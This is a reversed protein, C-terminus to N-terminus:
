KISSSKENYIVPNRKNKFYKFNRLFKLRNRRYFNLVYTIERSPYYRDPSVLAGANLMRKTALDFNRKASKPPKYPTFIGRKINIRIKRNGIRQKIQKRLQRKDVGLKELALYDRYFNQQATYSARQSNGYANLIDQASVAGSQYTIRTFM